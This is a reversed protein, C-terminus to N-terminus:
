ERMIAEHLAVIANNNPVSLGRQDRPTCNSSTKSDKSRHAPEAGGGHNNSVVHNINVTRVEHNAYDDLQSQSHIHMTSSIPDASTNLASVPPQPLLSSSCNNNRPSYYQKTMYVDSKMCNRILAERERNFRKCETIYQEYRSPILTQYDTYDLGGVFGGYEERLNAAGNRADPDYYPENKEVVRAFVKAKGQDDIDLTLKYEYNFRFSDIKRKKSRNQGRQCRQQALNELDYSELRQERVNPTNPLCFPSSNIYKLMQDEYPSSHLSKASRRNPPEAADSFDLVRKFEHESPIPSTKLPSSSKLNRESTMISNYLPSSTGLDSKGDDGRWDAPPNEKCPEPDKDVGFEQTVFFLENHSKRLSKHKVSGTGEGNIDYLISKPKSKGTEKSPSLRMIPTANFGKKATAESLEFASRELPSTVSIEFTSEGVIGNGGNKKLCPRGRRRKLPSTELQAAMMRREEVRGNPLLGIPNVTFVPPVLM